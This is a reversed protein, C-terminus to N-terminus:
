CCYFKENKSQCFSLLGVFNQELKFVIFSGGGISVPLRSSSGHYLRLSKLVSFTIFEKM